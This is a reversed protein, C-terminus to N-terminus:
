WARIVTALCVTQECFIQYAVKKDYIVLEIQQDRFTHKLNPYLTFSKVSSKGLLTETPISDHSNLLCCDREPWTDAECFLRGSGLPSWLCCTVHFLIQYPQMSSPPSPVSTLSLYYHYPVAVRRSCQILQESVLCPSCSTLQQGVQTNVIAQLLTNEPLSM